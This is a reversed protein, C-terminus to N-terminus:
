MPESVLHDERGTDGEHAVRATARAIVKLLDLWKASIGYDFVTFGTANRGPRSLSDVFGGGVPDAVQVFVIPITATLEQLPGVQTGGVTLIVDPNLAVLEAATSRIRPATGMTWRYDLRLNRGVAWGLEALRGVFADIYMRSEPDSEALNMQVAVRRVRQQARVALPWTAAAGGVLAIFERRRM